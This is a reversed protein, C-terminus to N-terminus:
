TWDLLDIKYEKCRFARLLPNCAPRSLSSTRPRQTSRHPNSSINIEPPPASSSSLADGHAMPTKGKGLSLSSLDGVLSETGVTQHTARLERLTLTTGSADHRPQQHTIDDDTPPARPSLLVMNYEHGLSMFELSGFWIMTGLRLPRVPDAMRFRNPHSLQCATTGRGLVGVIPTKSRHARLRSTFTYQTGRIVSPSAFLCM